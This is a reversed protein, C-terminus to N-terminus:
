SAEKAHINRDHRAISRARLKRGCDPCRIDKSRRESRCEACERTGNSAIFLADRATVDHGRACRGDLAFGKASRRVNEARTVPELHEPRVCARNRCLHDLELGDPIPGVLAVYAHRHVYREGGSWVSRQGYGSPTKCGTWLWCEAGKDVKSWFRADLEAATTITRATM